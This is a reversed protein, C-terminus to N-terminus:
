DRSLDLVCPWTALPAGFADRYTVRWQGQEEVDWSARCFYSGNDTRECTAPIDIDAFGDTLADIDLKHSGIMDIYSISIERWVQCGDSVEPLTEVCYVSCREQMSAILRQIDPLYDLIDDQAVVSSPMLMAVAIASRM